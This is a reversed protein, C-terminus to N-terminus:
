KRAVSGWLGEDTERGRILIKKRVWGVRGDGALGQRLARSARAAGAREAPFLGKESTAKLDMTGRDRVTTRGVM